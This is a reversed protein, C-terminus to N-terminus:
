AGPKHTCLRAADRWAANQAWRDRVTANRRTWLSPDLAVDVAKLPPDVLSSDSELVIKM